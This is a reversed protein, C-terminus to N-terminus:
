EPREIRNPNLTITYSPFCVFKFRLTRSDFAQGNGLSHPSRTRSVRIHPKPCNILHQHVIM